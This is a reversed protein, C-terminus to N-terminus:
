LTAGRGGFYKGGSIHSHNEMTSNGASFFLKITSNRRSFKVMYDIKGPFFRSYANKCLRGGGGRTIRHCSIM